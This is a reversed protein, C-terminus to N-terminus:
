DDVGLAFDDGLGGLVFLFDEVCVDVGGLDCCGAAGPGEESVASCVGVLIECLFKPIINILCGLIVWM